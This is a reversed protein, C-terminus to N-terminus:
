SEEHPEVIQASVSSAHLQSHLNAAPSQSLNYESDIYMRLACLSDQHHQGTICYGM